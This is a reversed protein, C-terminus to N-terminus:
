EGSDHSYGSDYHGSSDSSHDNCSNDMVVWSTAANIGTEAVHGPTSEEHGDILDGIASSFDHMANSFADMADHCLDM